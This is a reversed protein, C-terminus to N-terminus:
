KILSEWYDCYAYFYQEDTQDDEAYRNYDVRFKEVIEAPAIDLWEEYTLNVVKKM